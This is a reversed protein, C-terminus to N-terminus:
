CIEFILVLDVSNPSGEYQHVLRIFALVAHEKTLKPDAKQLGMDGFGDQGHYMIHRPLIPQV